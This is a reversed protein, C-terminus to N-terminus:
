GTLMKLPEPLLPTSVNTEWRIESISFGFQMTGWYRGLWYVRTLQINFGRKPDCWIGGYRGRVRKWKRGKRFQFTVMQGAYQSAIKRLAETLNRM